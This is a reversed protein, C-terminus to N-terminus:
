WSAYYEYEEYEGAVKLEEELVDITREIDSKYYEDIEYGGFFFGQVPPLIDTIADTNDYVEVDVMYEEGNKWGGRVKTTKKPLTNLLGLVTKCDELLQKLHETNLRYKVNDIEEDGNSVFWGHIQNAKRWYAIEETVYSIRKPNITDCVQGGKTVLVNFKEEPADHEWQKVYSKKSLYMDLGM